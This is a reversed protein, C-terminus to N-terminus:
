DVNTAAKAGLMGKPIGKSTSKYMESQLAQLYDLKWPKINM